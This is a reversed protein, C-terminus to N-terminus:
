YPSSTSQPTIPKTIAGSISTPLSVNLPLTFVFRAGGYPVNEAWIKGGHSEIIARVIALGLGSGGTIAQRSSDVRYFREFVRPLADTPIGDGSDTVAVEMYEGRRSAEITVSGGPPTHRLANDCLNSFVRVLMDPDAYVVPENYAITNVPEVNVREFETVMAALVEDVLAA